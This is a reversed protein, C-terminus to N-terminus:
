REGRAAPDVSGPVPTPGDGPLRNSCIQHAAETVGYAEVM